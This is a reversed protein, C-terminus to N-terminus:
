SVNIKKRQQLRRSQLKSLLLFSCLGCFLKSNCIIHVGAVVVFFFLCAYITENYCVNRREYDCHAILIENMLELCM